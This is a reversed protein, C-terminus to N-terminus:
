VAEQEYKQKLVELDQKAKAYEPMQEMVKRFSLYGFQTQACVAMPLIALLILVLRKM